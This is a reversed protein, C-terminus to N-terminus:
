LMSRFVGGFRNSSIDFFNGVLPFQVDPRARIAVRRRERVFVRVRFNMPKSTTSATAASRLRTNPGASAAFARGRAPRWPRPLLSGRAPPSRRGRAAPPRSISWRVAPCIQHRADLRRDIRADVAVQLLRRDVDAVAHFFAVQQDLDFRGIQVRLDRLACAVSACDFAVNCCSAGRQGHRLAVGLQGIQGASRYLDQQRWLRM